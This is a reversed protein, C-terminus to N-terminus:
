VTIKGNVEVRHVAGQLYLTFNVEPLIRAARDATSIDARKPTTLVFMYQGDDSYAADAKSGVRAIIGNDGARQLVARVVGEVQGIGADDLGVKETNVFLSLLEVTLENEIWDQSDIVDIFEGSTTYGENFYTAGAQEQIANGKDHGGSGTRITNLQTSTFTSAVQGSPRKWKWTFSGPTKGVNQGVWAAEPYSTPATHIVYAERDVNRDTLADAGSACGFFFKKNSNAWTGVKWLKDKGRSDILVTRFKESYSAVLTDLYDDYDTGTAKRAVMVDEPRPSQAFMASVMLYEPSDTAYGASVLDALETAIIYDIASGSTGLVLPRFNQRTLSATARTISIVIDNIAAM